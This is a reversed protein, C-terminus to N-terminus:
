VIKRKSVYRYALLSFPIPLWYTVLRYLVVVSVATVEVVGLSVLASVMAIELPGLGGPTPIVSKAIIATAYVLVAASIGLGLGLAKFSLFLCAIYSLSVALGAACTLVVEFTSQTFERISTAFNSVGSIAKHRINRFLALTIIVSIIVAVTTILQKATIKLTILEALGEGKFLLFLGLPVIFMIFGIISHAAIIAATDARDNGAKHLYSANLGTSGLAGPLIKNMFSAAVQVLTTMPLKIPVSSLIVIGSASFVYTLFSTLLIPILWWFNIGAISGMAGRFLGIQPVIVYIFLGILGINIIKRLNFRVIDAEDIEEEIALRTKIEDSLEGLLHKNARLSKATAGSFVERKLYPLVRALKPPDIVEMAADVTRHVGVVLSMSMLLEAVDMYQRQKRASVEAFGFDIIWAKGKKDIMVNAARLDRHAINSKHLLEVQRWADVLSSQKLRKHNALAKTDLMEVILM